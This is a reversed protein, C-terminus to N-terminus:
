ALRGARWGADLRRVKIQKHGELRRAMVQDDISATEPWLPLKAIFDLEDQNPAGVYWVGPRGGGIFKMTVTSGGEPVPAFEIRSVLRSIRANLDRREDATTHSRLARHLATLGEPTDDPMPAGHIEIMSAQLAREADGLQARIESLRGAAEVAGGEIAQVLRDRRVILDAIKARQVDAASELEVRHESARAVIGSARDGLAIMLFGETKIYEYRRRHTCRLRQAKACIFKPTTDKGKDEYAMGGGCVGCFTLGRVVSNFADSKGGTFQRGSRGFHAAHWQDESIARPYFDPVPNGAELREGGRPKTCPQMEGLVARNNLIKQIYSSQWGDAKRPAVPKGDADRWFGRQWTDEGAATLRKAIARNGLRLPPAAWAFIKRVVEARDPILEYHSDEGVEVVAIWAPTLDTLVDGSRRARERKQSWAETVRKSKIVSENRGRALSMMAYMMDMMDTDDNSGARFRYSPEGLTVIDIGQRMLGLLLYLGEKLNQRTMRDLSEMVLVSGRPIEGRESRTKFEALAGTRTNDGTFASVGLDSLSEDFPMENESAWKATGATQRRLGDGQLQEHSSLRNYSYVRPEAIPAAPPLPKRRRM